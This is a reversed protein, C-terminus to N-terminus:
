GQSSYTSGEQSSFKSFSALVALFSETSKRDEPDGRSLSVDQRLKEDAKELDSNCKKYKSITVKM